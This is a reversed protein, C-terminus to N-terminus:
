YFFLLIYVLPQGGFFPIKSSFPHFEHPCGYDIPIPWYRYLDSVDVIELLKNDKDIWVLAVM